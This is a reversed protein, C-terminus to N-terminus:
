AGAEPAVAYAKKIHLFDKKLQELNEEISMVKFSSSGLYEGHVSICGDFGQKRLIAFVHAFDVVGEDFPCLKPRWRALGSVDDRQAWFNKFAVVKTYPALLEMGLIWGYSFGEAALNGVDPYAGIYRADRNQLADRIQFAASFVYPGDHPHLIVCVGYERAVAELGDLDTMVSNFCNYYGNYDSLRWYGLKIYQVGARAAAAFVERVYPQSANTYDSTLMPVSLGRSRLYTIASELSSAADQPLIHGGERCTLDIGDFGMSLADDALMEVTKGMSAKSFM